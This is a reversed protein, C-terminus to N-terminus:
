HIFSVRLSGLWGTMSFLLKSSIKQGRVRITLSWSSPLVLDQSCLSIIGHKCSRDAPSEGFRFTIHWFYLYILLGYSNATRWPWIPIANNSECPATDFCDVSESKWWLGCSWSVALPHLSPSLPLFLVVSLPFFSPSFSLPSVFQNNPTLDTMTMRPPHIFTKSPRQLNLCPSHRFVLSIPKPGRSPFWHTPPMVTSTNNQARSYPRVLSQPPDWIQCSFETKWIHLNKNAKKIVLLFSFVKQNSIDLSACDKRWDWDWWPNQCRSIGFIPVTETPQMLSFMFLKIPVSFLAATWKIFVFLCSCISWSSCSKM